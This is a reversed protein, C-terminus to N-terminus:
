GGPKGPGALPGPERSHLVMSGPLPEELSPCDKYQWKALGSNATPHGNVPERSKITVPLEFGLGLRVGHVSTTIM